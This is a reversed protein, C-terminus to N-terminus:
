GSRVHDIQSMTIAIAAAVTGGFLFVYGAVTGTVVLDGEGSKSSLVVVAILWGVAPLLAALRTRMMRGAARCMVFNVVVAVIAGVPVSAVSLSFLFAGYIGVFLGLLLLMGYAGGALIADVRGPGSTEQDQAPQSGPVRSDSEPQNGLDVGSRASDGGEASGDTDEKDEDMGSM